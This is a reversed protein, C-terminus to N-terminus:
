PDYRCAVYQSETAYTRTFIYEKYRIPDKTMCREQESLYPQNPGVSNPKGCAHIKTATTM